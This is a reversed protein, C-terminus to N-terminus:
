VKPARQVGFKFTLLDRKEDHWSNENALFIRNKIPSLIIESTCKHTYSVEQIMQLEVPDFVNQWAWLFFIHFYFLFLFFVEIQQLAFYIFAKM